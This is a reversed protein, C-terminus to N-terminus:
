IPESKDMMYQVARIINAKFINAEPAQWSPKDNIIEPGTQILSIINPLLNVDINIPETYITSNNDPTSGDRTYYITGESTESSIDLDFANTFYGGRHSFHLISQSNNVNAANPTPFTFESINQSGDPFRGYSVDTEISVPAFYDITLGSDDLLFLKEGESNLKFNTHLNDTTYIDKGSAFILLFSNAEVIVSPFIWKSLDDDDDSLRYNHLDVPSNSNNYIEIWDPYDGEFDSITSANSSMFENIVINQAQIDTFLFVVFLLLIFSLKNLISNM